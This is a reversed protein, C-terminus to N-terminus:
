TSDCAPPSRGTAESCWRRCTPWPGLGAGHRQCEWPWGLGHSSARQRSLLAAMVLPLEDVAAAAAMATTVAAIPAVTM